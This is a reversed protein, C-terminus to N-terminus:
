GHDKKKQKAESLEVQTNVSNWENTDKLRLPTVSRGQKAAIGILEPLGYERKVKSKKVLSINNKLWKTDFCLAGCLIDVKKLNRKQAQDYSLVGVFEGKSNRDLCGFRLPSGSVFTLLTITSDNYLHESILQKITEPKYLSSDDAFLVLVNKSKNGLKKLGYKTAHATGKQEPQIAFKVKYGSDEVSKIIEGSGYGVVVVVDDLKLKKLLDLTWYILPKGEILSLVKPTDSKMRAGKGGALLIVSFNNM